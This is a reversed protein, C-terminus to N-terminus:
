TSTWAAMLRDLAPILLVRVEPHAELHTEQSYRAYDIALADDQQM